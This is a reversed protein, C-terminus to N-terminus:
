VRVEQTAHTLQLQVPTETQWATMSAHSCACGIAAKARCGSNATIMGPLCTYHGHVSSFSRLGELPTAPRHLPMVKAHPPMQLCSVCVQELLANEMTVHGNDLHKQFGVRVEKCTAPPSSNCGRSPQPANCHGKAHQFTDSRLACKDKALMHGVSIHKAAATSVQKTSTCKCGYSAPRVQRYVSDPIALQKALMSRLCGCQADCCLSCADPPFDLRHPTIQATVLCCSQDWASLLLCALMCHSVPPPHSCAGVTYLQALANSGPTLGIGAAVRCAAAAAARYQHAPFPLDAKPKAMCAPKFSSSM